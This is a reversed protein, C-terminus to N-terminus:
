RLGHIAFLNNKVEEIVRAVVPDVMQRQDADIVQERDRLGGSWETSEMMVGGMGLHEHPTDNGCLALWCLSWARVTNEVDYGGGGTALIPKDFAVL